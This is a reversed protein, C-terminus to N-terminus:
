EYEYDLEEPEEREGLAEEIYLEWQKKFEEQMPKPLRECVENVTDVYGEFSEKLDKYERKITGLEKRILEIEKAEYSSLLQKTNREFTEMTEKLALHHHYAVHRERWKDDPVTVFKKKKQFPLGKETVVAYEPYETTIQSEREMESIYAQKANFENRLIETNLKINKAESLTKQAKKLDESAKLRKFEKLSLNGEATSGNIVAYAEKNLRGKFEKDLHEQLDTHFTQLEKKNILKKASVTYRNKKDDFTIPVFAFHIHPTTEDMHVYASVVNEKGYRNEMFQYVSRFFREREEEPLQQPETVAWSCLVNVDARNLCYVEGCRQKIFELQNTRQPALNYNLHSRSVDIEQNSYRIPKGDKGTGREFHRCLHGLAEKTFKEVHAM